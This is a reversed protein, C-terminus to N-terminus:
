RSTAARQVNGVEKWPIAVGAETSGTHTIPLLMVLPFGCLVSGVFGGRGTM